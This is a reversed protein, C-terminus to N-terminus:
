TGFEVKEKNISVDNYFPLTEQIGVSVLLHVVMLQILFQCRKPALLPLDYPVMSTSSPTSPGSNWRRKTSQSMTIFHWFCIRNLALDSYYEGVHVPDGARYVYIECSRGGVIKKKSEETAM